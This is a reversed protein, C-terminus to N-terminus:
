PKNGEAAVHRGTISHSAVHIVAGTALDPSETVRLVYGPAPWVAYSETDVVEGVGTITTAGYYGPRYSFSVLAGIALRSM